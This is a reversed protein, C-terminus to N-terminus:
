VCIKVRISFSMILHLFLWLVIFLFICLLILKINNVSLTWITNLSDWSKFNKVVITLYYSLHIRVHHSSCCKWKEYLLIYQKWFLIYWTYYGNYMSWLLFGSCHFYLNNFFVWYFDSLVNGCCRHLLVTDLVCHYCNLSNVVFVSYM